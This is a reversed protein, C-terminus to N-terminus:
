VSVVGSITVTHVAGALTASFKVDPLNRIVKNAASVDAVKPVTVTWGADIITRSEARKLSARVAAEILAIGANTFPVKPAGALVEFVASSMDNDLWDLGRAVDIFNGDSTTGDYTLNIGATREYFNCKKARLNVRHTATFTTPAVGALTKFKWTESGPDLPLVNGNWAAGAFSAPSPHYIAGTRAYALTHLDDATDSGLVAATIVASDSLTPVYIKKVAEIWAAAALVIANSNGLASTDLSYWDADYLNIATLDTAVGPDVHTQSISMYVTDAIELSFWDGAATATITVTDTEGAGVTQVATYNKGVVDNLAQVLRACIVDNTATNLTQVGTGDTTISLHTLAIANARSTAFYFTDADIKIVWYDTDVALGTPLGGGSNVVRVPGDGTTFGHAVSTFIETANAATFVINAAGATATAATATVGEGAVNVVYAHGAEVTAVGLVYKQTSPLACRGIKVASPHPSQSFVASAALYEPSSAAFGDAAVGALDAYTRAREAFGANASLIMLTGYGDRTVGVSDQRITLSVTDSLTGM